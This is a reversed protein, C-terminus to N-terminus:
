DEELNQFRDLKYVDEWRYKRGCSSCHGIAVCFIEDGEDYFDIHEDFDIETDCYPCDPNYNM